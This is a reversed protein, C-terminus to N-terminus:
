PATQTKVLTYVQVIAFSHNSSFDHVVGDKFAAVHGDTELLMPPMKAWVDHFRKPHYTTLHKLKQSRIPYQAIIAKVWDPAEKHFNHKKGLACLQFGLSQIATRIEWPYSGERPQCGAQRFAKLVQYYPLGTLIAIARVACDNSEGHREAEDAM